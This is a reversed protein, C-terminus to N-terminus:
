PIAAITTSWTEFPSARWSDGSTRWSSRSPASSTDRRAGAVHPTVIVNPLRWLPSAPPLPEEQFVDLAAGGLRGSELASVLAGEDVVAGRAVNVLYAGERM